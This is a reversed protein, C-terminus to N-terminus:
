VIVTRLGDAAALSAIGENVEDLSIRRSVMAALDIRGAEAM